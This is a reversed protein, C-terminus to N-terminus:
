LIGCSPLDAIPIGTFRSYSNDLCIEHEGTTKIDIAHLGDTSSPDMVLSAQNPGNVFFNIDLDGGEIVQFLFLVSSVITLYLPPLVHSICTAIIIVDDLYAVNTSVNHEKQFKAVHCRHVLPQEKYLIIM